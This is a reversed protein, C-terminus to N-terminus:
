PRREDVRPAGDLLRALREILLSAETLRAVDIVSANDRPGHLQGVPLALLGSIVDGADILGCSFFAVVKARKRTTFWSRQPLLGGALNFLLGRGLDEIFSTSAFASHDGGAMVPMDEDRLEVGVGTAATHALAALGQDSENAVLCTAHGALGVSDVNIVADIRAFEEASLGAVHARAGRLGSEEAGALLVRLSHRLGDDRLARAVDLVVAVGSANDLAGESLFSFGIPEDLAGNVLVSLVKLLNMDTKDVHAVLYVLRPSEGPLDIVLNDQLSFWDIWERRPSLGLGRARAEAADIRRLNARADVLAQVTARLGEARERLAPEEAHWGAPPEPVRHVCGSAAAALWLAAAFRPSRRVTM